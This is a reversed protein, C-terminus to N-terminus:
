IKQKALRLTLKKRPFQGQAVGIIGLGKESTRFSAITIQELDRDPDVGIGKLADEFQKMNPPMLKSKMQMATDSNKMRRYDVNIIQQVESPIVTRAATGLSAAFGSSATLLVLVASVITRTRNKLMTM